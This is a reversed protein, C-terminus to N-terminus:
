YEYFTKATARMQKLAEDFEGAALQKVYGQLLYRGGEIVLIELRSYDKAYIFLYGADKFLYMPNQKEEGKVRITKKDNPEGFGFGTYEPTLYEYISSFNMANSQLYFGARRQDPANIIGKTKILDFKLMGKSNIFPDIGKWFGNSRICDLRPTSRSLKIKHKAKLNDPLVICDLYYSFM